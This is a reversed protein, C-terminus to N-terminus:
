TFLSLQIYEPEPPKIIPTEYPSDNWEWLDRYTFLSFRLMSCLETFSWRFSSKFKLYKLLLISILATWIQTKVANESTGVFTKIKFNQKLAKFFLEIQWRDKYISAITSAAYDLNSLLVITRENKEDWVVIRRLRYPCKERAKVGTLLIIQDKLIRGKENARNRKLVHYVANNKMRTVFYVGSGIWSAFLRYDNYARDMAVITGTAFSLTRAPTVDHVKGNSIYAWSPLYGQHDLMLHLKVAGKARRFHAWDFTKLCLDIVSSDISVLKNKFRFKRKQTGIAIKCEQLLQNFIDEFVQWPRHTNAYSLSSRPPAKSLGLHKLKGLAVGLGGSIERLSNASALQCFMMSVFQSWSTFGKMGKEAKYKKVTREFMNRNVLRLIQAFISATRNM